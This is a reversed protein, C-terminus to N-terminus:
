PVESVTSGIPIGATRSEAISPVEEGLLALASTFARFRAGAAPLESQAYIRRISRGHTIGPDIVFERGAGIAQRIGDGVLREVELGADAAVKRIAEDGVLIGVADAAAMAGLDIATSRQTWEREAIIPNLRQGAPAAADMAIIAPEIERRRSDPDYSAVAAARTKEIAVNAQDFDDIAIAAADLATRLAVLADDRQRAVKQGSKGLAAAAKEANAAQEESLRHRLVERASVLAERDDHALFKAQRAAALEEGDAEGLVHAAAASQVAATASELAQEAAEVRGELESLRDTLTLQSTM